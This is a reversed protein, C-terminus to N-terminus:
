REPRARAWRRQGGHVGVGEGGAGADSGEFQGVGLGEVGQGDGVAVAQSGPEGPHGVGHLDGVGAGEHFEGDGAGGLVVAALVGQEDIVLEGADEAVVADVPGVASGGEAVPEVVAVFALAEDGAADSAEEILGEVVPFEVADFDGGVDGVGAGAGDGLAEAEGEFADAFVVHEAVAVEM